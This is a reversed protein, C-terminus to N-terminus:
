QVEETDFGVFVGNTIIPKLKYFKGDATDAIAVNSDKYTLTKKGIPYAGQYEYEVLILDDAILDTTSFSLGDGAIIINDLSVETKVGTIKDFKYLSKVSNIPYDTDTIEFNTGYIGADAIINDFYVTGNSFSTPVGATEIETYIPEDLVTLGDNSIRQVHNYVGNILEITDKDSGISKLEPSKIYFDSSKYPEYATAVTNEEIQFSDVFMLLPLSSSSYDTQVYDVDKTVNTTKSFFTKELTPYFLADYSGDTYYVRLRFNAVDNQESCYGSFTYQTGKKFNFDLVKYTSFDTGEISFGTNTKSIILNDNPILNKYDFLNKGVSRVRGAGQFSKIGDFYTTFIQQCDAVDLDTQIVMIDAIDGSDNTITIDSGTGTIKIEHLSDYYLEDLVSTFVVTDGSAINEGSVLNEATIGEMSVKASANSANVPLSISSYGEQSLESAGTPNLNNIINKANVIEAKNSIIAKENTAISDANDAIAEDQVQQQADIEAIDQKNTEIQAASAVVEDRAAEAEDASIAANGASTSASSASSSASSAASVATDKAAVATDASSVAEDRATTTEDRLEEFLDLYQELVTPTFEGTSVVNITQEVVIKAIKTQYAMTNDIKCFLQFELVGSSSTAWENPTWDLTLNDGSVVATLELVDAVRKNLTFQLYWDAGSLDTGDYEKAVIFQIVDYADGSVVLRKINDIAITKETINATKM